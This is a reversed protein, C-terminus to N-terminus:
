LKSCVLEKTKRENESDVIVQSVGNQIVRIRPMLSVRQVGTVGALRNMIMYIAVKAFEKSQPLVELCYAKPIIRGYFSGHMSDCSALAFDSVDMSVTNKADLIASAVLGDVGVMAYPPEIEKLADSAISFFRKTAESYRPDFKSVYLYKEPSFGAEEMAQRYGDARERPPGPRDTTFFLVKEYGKELIMKTIKYGIMQDDSVVADYTKLIHFKDTLVVPIGANRMKTLIKENEVGYLFPVYLGDVRQALLDELNNRENKKLEKASADLNQASFRIILSAGFRKAEEEATMAIMSNEVEFASYKGGTELRLHPLMLAINVIKSSKSRDAVFTGRGQACEVYGQDELDKLAHIVTAFSLGYEARIERTSPLKAGPRLGEEVIATKIGEALQSHLPRSSKKDLNFRM